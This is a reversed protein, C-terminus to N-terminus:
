PLVTPRFKGTSLMVADDYLENPDSTFPFTVTYDLELLYPFCVEFRGRHSPTASYLANIKNLYEDINTPFLFEDPTVLYQTSDVGTKQLKEAPEKIANNAMNRSSSQTKPTM